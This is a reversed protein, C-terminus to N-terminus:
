SSVGHQIVALTQLLGLMQLKKRDQFTLIGIILAKIAFPHLVYVSVSFSKCSELWGTDESKRPPLLMLKRIIKSGFDLWSESSFEGSIVSAWEDEFMFVSSKLVSEKRNGGRSFLIAYYIFVAGLVTAISAVTSMKM